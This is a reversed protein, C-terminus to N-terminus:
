LAKFRVFCVNIGLCLDASFVLAIETCGETKSPADAGHLM